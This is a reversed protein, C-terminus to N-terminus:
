NYRTVFDFTSRLFRISALAVKDKFCEPEIHTLEVKEADEMSYVPHPMRYSNPNFIMRHKPVKDFWKRTTTKLHNM